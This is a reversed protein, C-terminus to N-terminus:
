MGEFWRSDSDAEGAAGDSDTAWWASARSDGASARGDLEVPVLPSSSAVDSRGRKHRSTRRARAAACHQQELAADAVGMAADFEDEAAAGDGDDTGCAPGGTAVLAARAAEISGAVDPLLRGLAAEVGVVDATGLLEVLQRAFDSGPPALTAIRGVSAAISPLYTDYLLRQRLDAPSLLLGPLQLRLQQLAGQVADSVAAALAADAPDVSCKTLDRFRLARAAGTPCRQEDDDGCREGPAAARADVLLTLVRFPLAPMDPSCSAAVLPLEAADVGDLQLQAGDAGSPTPLAPAGALAAAARKSRAGTATHAFASTEFPVADLGWEAWPLDRVTHWLGCSEAGRLLPRGEVFRVVHLFARTHGNRQAATTAAEVIAAGTAHLEAASTDGADATAAIDAGEEEAGGVRGGDARPREECSSRAQRPPAARPLAVPRLVAFARVRLVRRPQRDSGAAAEAYSVCASPVGFLSCLLAATVDDDGIEPPQPAAAPVAAAEGTVTDAPETRSSARRSADLADRVCRLSPACLAVAGGALAPMVAPGDAARGRRPVRPAPPALGSLTLTVDAAGPLAALRQVYAAILPAAAVDGNLQVSFLSGGMAAAVKEAEGEDVVIAGGTHPHIGVRLLRVRSEGRTTTAISLPALERDITEDDDGGTAGELPRQESRQAHLIVAKLGVGYRGSVGETAAKSTAFVGGVLRGVADAPLGDGDDEVSLLWSRPAGGSGGGSGDAPGVAVSVRTARADLSNEVLEKVSQALARAPTDFGVLAANDGVFAAASRAMM